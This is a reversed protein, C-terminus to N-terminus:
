PVFIVIFFLIELHIKLNKSFYYNNNKLIFNCKTNIYSICRNSIAYEICENHNGKINMYTVIYINM